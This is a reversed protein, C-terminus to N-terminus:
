TADLNTNRRKKPLLLTGLIGVRKAMEWIALPAALGLTFSLIGALYPIKLISLLIDFTKSQVIGHFILIFLSGAGIYTFVVELSKQRKLLAALGFCLYIASFAQATTIALQGYARLMLDMTEDFFYHLGFFLAAALLFPYFAFKFQQLSKSFAYGILIFGATLPLLDISWPLGVPTRFGMVTEPESAWFERISLGGAAILAVAIVQLWIAPSNRLAKIILFAVLSSVFLHPLFWAHGWAITPGSAFFMGGFYELREVSVYHTKAFELGLRWLGLAGLVVFYPKLLSDAKSTLFKSMLETPRIFIGAIFFFLAMHFSFIIRFLEGKDHLTIWNHGFVVFIIGIGKTVDIQTNRM